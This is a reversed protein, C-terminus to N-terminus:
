IDDNPKFSFFKCRLEGPAGDAMIYNVIYQCNFQNVSISQLQHFLQKFCSSHEDTSILALGFPRFHRDAASAGFVLLPLDNWTLKYTADIQLLSTNQIQQILQKTTFFVFIDDINNISYYPVYTSHLSNVDYKHNSCWENFDYISIVEPRQKRRAYSVGNIIQDASLLMAPYDLSLAAKIQGQHLNCKVYKEISDRVPSPLRTTANRQTHDHSNKFMIKITSPNNEHVYVQIEYRCTPYKRYQSCRYSYKVCDSLNSTRYKSVGNSKLLAEAEGLSSVINLLHYEEKSM